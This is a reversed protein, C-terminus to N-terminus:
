PATALFHTQDAASCVEGAAGPKINGYFDVQYTHQSSSVNFGCVHPGTHTDGNSFTVAGFTPDNTYPKAEIAAVATGDSKVVMQITTAGETLTATVSATPPRACGALLLAAALAAVLSMRLPEGDNARGHPDTM